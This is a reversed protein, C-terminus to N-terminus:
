GLLIGATIMRQMDNVGEIQEGIILDRYIRSVEYDEMLGYSGHVAMALRSVDVANETVFTKTLAAEYAFQRLDKLTEALYGLRYTMLRAAQTKEAIKAINLQVSQFKGITKDRHSKEKAYKICLELCKTMGALCCSSVGVKGYAIGAQLVAYGMGKPGLINEAPVRVDKLYVDLLQGGRMGIKHWPESISYGPCNKEVIFGTPFGSEEDKAFIVIPGEMEAASIFRKTGNIIYYDGDKIATTTIQKPDSGTAPETFAFSAFKKGVCCDPIYKKKQEETGFANIASLGLGNVSMTMGVGSSAKAIQEVALPYCSYGAGN